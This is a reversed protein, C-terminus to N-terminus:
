EYNIAIYKKILGTKYESVMDDGVRIDGNPMVKGNHKSLVIKRYEPVRMLDIQRPGRRKKMSKFISM